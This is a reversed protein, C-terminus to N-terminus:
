PIKDLGLAEHIVRRIGPVELAAQELPQTVILMMSKSPLTGSHAIIVIRPFQLPPYISSPLSLGTTLGTAADRFNTATFNAETWGGNVYTLLGPLAVYGIRGGVAWSWDNKFRGVFGFPGVCGGPCNFSNNGAIDAFQADAFAGIVWSSMQYDWGIGVKGLWGRAGNDHGIDFDTFPAVPSRVSHEIDALGYGFGGSIWFGTWPTSPYAVPAPGMPAKAAMDAAFAPASFAAVASLALLLKKM